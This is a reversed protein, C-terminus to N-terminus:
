PRNNAPRTTSRRQVTAMNSFGLKRFRQKRLHTLLRIFCIGGISFHSNGHLPPRCFRSAIVDGFLDGKGVGSPIRLIITTRKFIFREELHKDCDADNDLIKPNQSPTNERMMDSTQGPPFTTSLYSASLRDL